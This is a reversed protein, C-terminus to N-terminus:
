GKEPGGSPRSRGRLAPRGQREQAAERVVRRSLIGFSLGTRGNKCVTKLTGNRGTLWRYLNRLVSTHDDPDRGGGSAHPKVTPERLLGVPRGAVGPARTDDNVRTRPRPNRSCEGRPPCAAFRQQTVSQDRLWRGVRGPCLSGDVCPLLDTKDHPGFNKPQRPRVGFALRAIRARESVRRRPGSSRPRREPSRPM